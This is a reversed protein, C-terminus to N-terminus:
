ARVNSKRMSLCIGFVATILLGWSAPEPVAATSFEAAPTYGGWGGQDLRFTGTGGAGGDNYFGAVTTNWYASDAVLDSGVTAGNSTGVNLSNYPGDVGTPNAGYSQTNFDLRWIFQDPAALGGLDFSILQGLGNYCQGNSAKWGTGCSPDAEPRWAILQDANVSGFESGVTNGAGVNYFRLTTNVVFGATTGVPEYTSELAWNSMYIRANSLQAPGSALVVGNGFGYTSTAQYGLSPTNPTGTPPLSSYVVEASCVAAMLAAMCIILFFSTKM